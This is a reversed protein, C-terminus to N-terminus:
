LRVTVREQDAIRELDVGGDGVLVVSGDAAWAALAAALTVAVDRGSVLVRPSAPWGQSGATTRAWVGLDGHAVPPEGVLNSLATAGLDLAATWGLADPYTMLDAAGDITGAPLPGPHRMALAPLAVGIVVAPGSADAPDSAPPRDTVVVASDGSAGGARDSGDTATGAPAAAGALWVEAGSTWAALAWVLTRWHVPLDVAVRTGAEADAEAVLLNTAKVVTNTLVRSSLEVREGATGYWTLRPRTPETTALARVLDRITTV